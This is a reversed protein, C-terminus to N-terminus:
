CPRKSFWLLIYWIAAILVIMVGGPNATVISLVAFMILAAQYAAKAETIASLVTFMILAPWMLDDM